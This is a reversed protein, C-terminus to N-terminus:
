QVLFSWGVTTQRMRRTDTKTTIYKDAMKIAEGSSKHDVITHLLACSFGDANGEEYIICAITNASEKITGDDFECEYVLTNLIPNVNWAGIAKGQHDVARRVVRAIATAEDKDLLVESNILADTLSNLMLPRGGADVLDAEFPENIPTEDDGYPEVNWDPEPHFPLPTTPLMVSDGLKRTINATYAARKAAEIENSDSRANM